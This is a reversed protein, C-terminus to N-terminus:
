PYLGLEKILEILEECGSGFAIHMSGKEGTAPNKFTIYLKGETEFPREFIYYVLNGNELGDVVAEYLKASKEADFYVSPHNEEGYFYTIYGQVTDWGVFSRLWDYNVLFSPDEQNLYYWHIMDASEIMQLEVLLEIINTCDRGYSIVITKSENTDPLVVDLIIDYTSDGYYPEELKYDTLYRKANYKLLDGNKWDQLIAQYIRKQIDYDSFDTVELISKDEEEYRVGVEIRTNVFTDLKNYEKGFVNKLYKTHADGIVETEGPNYWEIDDVSDIIGNAQLENIIIECDKGFPLNVGWIQGDSPRMYIISLYCIEDASESIYKQLNGYKWEKLAANYLTESLVDDLEFGNFSSLGAFEREKGISGCYFETVREYDECILDELRTDEPEETDKTPEWYIDESSSIIGLSILENIIFQCDSGFKWNFYHWVGSDPGRFEVAIHSLEESESYYHNKLNGSEWEKIIAWYLKESQGEELEYYEYWDGVQRLLLEGTTFETVLTYDFGLLESITFEPMVTSMGLSSWYFDEASEAYELQLMVNIINECDYDYYFVLKEEEKGDKYRLVVYNDQSYVSKVNSHNDCIYLSNYKQITGAEADAKIAQYMRKANEENLIGTQFRVNKVLGDETDEWLAYSIDGSSFEEIQNSLGIVQRFFQEASTEQEIFLDIIDQGIGNDMPVSYYRYQYSGDKMYYEFRVVEEENYSYVDEEDMEELYSLNDLIKKHAEVVWQCDDETFCMEYDLRATAFEIRDVDPIEYQRWEAYGYLAGFSAFMIVGSIGASIWNERKFVRFTKKVLMDAFFYALMGIVLMVIFFLPTEFIHISFLELIIAVLIAGYMAAFASVGYCVLKKLPKIAVLNGAQEIQRKQYLWYAIGYLVVAVCLYILICPVGKLYMSTPTEVDTWGSSQMRVSQLYCIFPSLWKVISSDMADLSISVGYSYLSVMIDMLGGVIWSLSNIAVVYIPLAIMQGTFMACLTVMSFMIVDTALVMLLWMGIYEVKTVGESLCLLVTILFTVIQPVALFVLGSIVNTGFLETRNTPLSHIMYASKTNYMYHFLAMGAIVATLAIAWIHFESYELVYYLATTKQQLSPPTIIYSHFELWLIGPLSFLLVLTYIGWIPWYLAINKKFITKNFFSLKSSM